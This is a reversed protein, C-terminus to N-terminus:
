KVEKKKEQRKEYEDFLCKKIMDRLLLVFDDEFGNTKNMATFWQNMQEDNMNRVERIFVACMVSYALMKRKNAKKEQKKITTPKM